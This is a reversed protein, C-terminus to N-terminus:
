LDNHYGHDYLQGISVLNIPIDLAHKVNQLVLTSGINTKLCVIGVDFVKVEGANGMKLVESNVFYIILFSTKEQHSM